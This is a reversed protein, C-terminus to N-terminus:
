FADYLNVDNELLYKGGKPFFRFDNNLIVYGLITVLYVLRDVTLRVNEIIVGRYVVLKREM